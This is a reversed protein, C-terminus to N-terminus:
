ENQNKEKITPPHRKRRPKPPPTLVAVLADKAERYTDHVSIVHDHHCLEWEDNIQDLRLTYEPIPEPQPKTKVTTRKSM